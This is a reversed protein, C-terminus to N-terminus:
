RETSHIQGQSRGNSRVYWHSTREEVNVLLNDKSKVRKTEVRILSSLILRESYFFLNWVLTENAYISYTLLSFSRRVNIGLCTVIFVFQKVLSWNESSWM